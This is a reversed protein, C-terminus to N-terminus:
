VSYKEDDVKPLFFTAQSGGSHTEVDFPRPEQDTPKYWGVKRTWRNIDAESIGLDRLLGAYGEKHVLRNAPHNPDPQMKSYIDSLFAKFSPADLFAKGVISACLKMALTIHGADFVNEFMRFELRVGDRVDDDEDFNESNVRPSLAIRIPLHGPYSGSLVHGLLAAEETEFVGKLAQRIPNRPMDVIEDPINAALDPTDSDPVAEGSTALKSYRSIPLSFDWAERYPAALQFLTPEILWYLAVAKKLSLLDIGLPDQYGVNVHLGCKRNVQVRCNDRISRCIKHVQNTEPPMELDALTFVRSTIEAGTWYYLLEPDPWPQDNWKAILEPVLRTAQYLPHVHKVWDFGQDQVIERLRPVEEPFKGFHPEKICVGNEKWVQMTTRLLLDFEDEWKDLHGAHLFKRSDDQHYDKNKNKGIACLYESEFGVLILETKTLAQQPNPSSM